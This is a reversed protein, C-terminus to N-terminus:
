AYGLTLKILDQVNRVGLKNSMNSRHLEVTKISIGLLDAITKNLRGACVLELVQRERPSLKSLLNFSAVPNRLGSMPSTVAHRIAEFLKDQDFPKELFHAAGRRMAEVALPIDAHGSVMVVPYQVRHRWLTEMLEIGSGDPMRLDTVICAMEPRTQSELLTEVFVKGSDFEHVQIGEAELAFATSQRFPAHDDVLYVQIAEM